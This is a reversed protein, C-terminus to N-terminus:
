WGYSQREHCHTEKMKKRAEIRTLGYLPYCWHLEEGHKVCRAMDSGYYRDVRANLRERGHETVLCPSKHNECVSWREGKCTIPM